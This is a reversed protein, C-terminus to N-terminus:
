ISLFLAAVGTLLLKKHMCGKNSEWDGIIHNINIPQDIKLVFYIIRWVTKALYCDFFLHQISENQNCFSCKLSEQWRRKALNNKTLTV